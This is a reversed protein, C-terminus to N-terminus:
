KGNVIKIKNKKEQHLGATKQKTHFKFSKEVKTRFKQEDENETLTEEEKNKNQYYASM